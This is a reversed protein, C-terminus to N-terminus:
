RAVAEAVRGGPLRIYQGVGSDNFQKVLDAARRFYADPNKAHLLDVGLRLRELLCTQAIRVLRLDLAQPAVNGTPEFRADGAQLHQLSQRRSRIAFAASTRIPASRRLASTPGKLAGGTRLCASRPRSILM